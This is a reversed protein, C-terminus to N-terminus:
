GEIFVRKVRKSISTFVEYPITNMAKATEGILIHEGFIEVKDGRQCDVGSVDIMSIDMCINGVFPCRKGHIFVNGNGNGMARSLGDAYGISLMAIVKDKEQTQNGGYGVFEGKKVSKLGIGLRVMDFQHSTHRNIGRTNLIHYLIKHTFISDLKEKEAKFYDIQELSLEDKSEDESAILHSFVSKVHISQNDKLNYIDQMQDAKFGLRNMGSDIKLHIPYNKLGKKELFTLFAKLLDPSFISPELCNEIIAEFDQEDTLLVLIRTQIGKERFFAGEQTLAVALYDVGEAELLKVIEVEGNGYSSAKSVVMTMTEPHLLSKYYNFNHLVAGLDIKLKAIGV